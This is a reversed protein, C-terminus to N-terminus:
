INFTSRVALFLWPAQSLAIRISSSSYAGLEGYKEQDTAHSQGAFLRGAPCRPNEALRDLQWSLSGSHVGKEAQFFRSAIQQKLLNQQCHCVTSIRKISNRLQATRLAKSCKITTQPACFLLITLTQGIKM